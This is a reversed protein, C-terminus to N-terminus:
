WKDLQLGHQELYDGHEELYRKTLGAYDSPDGEIENAQMRAIEIENGVQNMIWVVIQGGPALGLVLKNRPAMRYGQMNRQPALEEMQQKWEPPITILRQYFKQEAVSFWQIGIYNPFPELRAMVGRPGHEGEWCCSLTGAPHYWHREGTKEFEWHEVWVEYKQPAAVVAFWVNPWEDSRSDSACGSLGTVVAFVLFSFGKM